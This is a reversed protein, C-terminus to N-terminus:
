SNGEFAREEDKFNSLDMSFNMVFDRFSEDFLLALEGLKATYPVDGNEGKVGSWDLLIADAMAKSLIRRHEAPDMTGNEIKRRHPQELRQKARLFRVNTAYAIKFRSGEYDAWVGDDVGETPKEPIKFSM